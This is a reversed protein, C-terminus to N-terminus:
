RRGSCFFPLAHGVVVGFGIGRLELELQDQFNELTLARLYLDASGVADMVGGDGLPLALKQFIAGLDKPEL